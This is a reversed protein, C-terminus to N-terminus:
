GIVQMLGELTAKVAQDTEAALRTALEARVENSVQPQVPLLRLLASAAVMRVETAEAQLLRLLAALSEGGGLLAFVNTLRILAPGYSHQQTLSYDLQEQALPLALARPFTGLAELALLYFAVQPPATGATIEISDPPNSFLSRLLPLFAPDGQERAAALMDQM